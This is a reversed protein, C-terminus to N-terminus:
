ILKGKNILPDLKDLIKCAEDLNEEYHNSKAILLLLQKRQINGGKGNGVVASKPQFILFELVVPND